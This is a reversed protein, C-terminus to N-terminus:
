YESAKTAIVHEENRLVERCQRQAGIVLNCLQYSLMGTELRSPQWTDCNANTEKLPVSGNTHLFVDVVYSCQHSIFM